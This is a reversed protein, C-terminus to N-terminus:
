NNSTSHQPNLEYTEKWKRRKQVNIPGTEKKWTGTKIASTQVSNDNNRNLGFLKEREVFLKVCKLFALGYQIFTSTYMLHTAWLIINAFDNCM